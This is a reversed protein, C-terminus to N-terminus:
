QQEPQGPNLAGVEVIKGKAPSYMIVKRSEPYILVRDGEVANKFFPQGELKSLDSVIALTPQEGDPLLMFRGVAAVTEALQKQAVADPNQSRNKLYYWGGALLALVVLLGIIIFKTKGKNPMAEPAAMTTQETEEM